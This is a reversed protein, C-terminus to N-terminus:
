FKQRACFDPKQKSIIIKLLIVIYWSQILYKLRVNSSNKDRDIIPGDGLLQM